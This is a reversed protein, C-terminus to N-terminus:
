YLDGWKIYNTYLQSWTDITSKATLGNATTITNNHVGNNFSTIDNSVDVSVNTDRFETNNLDYEASYSYPSNSKLTLQVYGDKAGNHFLSSDGEVIVYFIRNPNSEFIIPKYYPQFFWRALKRLTEPNDWDEIYFSLPFSLPEHEVRQFYSKERHDIKKEIISRSPLFAEQFLGSDTSAMFVGMDMSSIGDFMFNISERM